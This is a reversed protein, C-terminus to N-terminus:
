LDLLEWRSGIPVPEKYESALCEIMENTFTWKEGFEEVKYNDYSPDYPGPELITVTRGNNLKSIDIEKKRIYVVARNTNIIDKDFDGRINKWLGYEEVMREWTRIKVKDGVKYKMFRTVGM